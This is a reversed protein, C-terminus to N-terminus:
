SWKVVSRDIRQVFDQRGVAVVTVTSAPATLTLATTTAGISKILDRIGRGDGDTLRV